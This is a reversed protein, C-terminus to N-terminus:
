ENEELECVDWKVIVSGDRLHCKKRILVIDPGYLLTIIYKASSRKNKIWLIIDNKIAPMTNLLRTMVFRRCDFKKFMATRQAKTLRKRTM